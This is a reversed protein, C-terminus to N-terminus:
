WNRQIWTMLTKVAMIFQISTQQSCTSDYRRQESWVSVKSWAKNFDQNIARENQLAPHLGSLIVLDSIDHIQFLKSVKGPVEGNFMEVGLRKCIVAKLGFEVAYGSLYYTSNYFKNSNLLDAEALKSQAMAKLEGRTAM